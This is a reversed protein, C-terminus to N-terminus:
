TPWCRRTAAGPSSGTWPGRARPGRCRPPREPREPPRDPLRDGGVPAGGGARIGRPGARAGGGPGRYSAALLTPSVRPRCAPWGRLGPAMACAGGAGPRRQGRDGSRGPAPGAARGGRAAAGVPGSLDPLENHLSIVLAPTHTARPARPRAPTCRRPPWSAPKIDTPTSSIRRGCWPAFDPSISRPDPRRPSPWLLHAGPLDFTQATLPDTAVVVEHGLETLGAALDRVHVGIGGTAKGVLLVVRSM